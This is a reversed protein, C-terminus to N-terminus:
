YLKHMILDTGENHPPSRCHHLARTHMKYAQQTNLSLMQSKEQGKHNPLQDLCPFQAKAQGLSAGAGEHKLAAVLQLQPVAQPRGAAQPRHPGPALCWLAQPTGPTLTSPFPM